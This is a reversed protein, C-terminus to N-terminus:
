ARRACSFRFIKYTCFGGQCRGMQAADRVKHRRADHPGTRIAQIIESESVRECRRRHRRLRPGKEGARGARPRFIARGRCRTCSPIGTPRRSSVCAAKKLLDKVYEGIAPSATLGPSQIAAVHRSLFKPSLDIYFDRGLCAASRRFSTIVDNESISPVMTRARASAKSNKRTTSFDEKNEISTATPGILM